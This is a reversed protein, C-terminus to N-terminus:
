KTADHSRHRAQINELNTSFSRRVQAFSRYGAARFIGVVGLLVAIIIAITTM